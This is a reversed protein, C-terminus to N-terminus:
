ESLLRQFWTTNYKYFVMILATIEQPNEAAFKEYESLNKFETNKLFKPLKQWANELDAIFKAGRSRHNIKIGLSTLKFYIALYERAWFFLHSSHQINQLQLSSCRYFSGIETIGYSLVEGDPLSIEGDERRVHPRNSDYAKDSWGRIGFPKSFVILTNEVETQNKPEAYFQLDTKTDNLLHADARKSPQATIIRMFQDIGGSLGRQYHVGSSFDNQIKIWQNPGKEFVEVLKDKFLDIIQPSSKTEPHFLSICAIEANAMLASFCTVIFYLSLITIRKYFINVALM